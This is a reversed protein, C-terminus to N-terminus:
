RRQEEDDLPSPQQVAPAEKSEAPADEDDTDFFTIGNALAGNQSAAQNFLKEFSKTYDDRAGVQLRRLRLM